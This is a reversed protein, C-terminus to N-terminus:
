RIQTRITINSHANEANSNSHCLCLAVSSSCWTSLAAEQRRYLKRPNSGVLVNEFKSWQRRLSESCRLRKKAYELQFRSIQYNRIQCMINQERAISKPLKMNGKFKKMHSKLVPIVCDSHFRLVMSISEDNHDFHEVSENQEHNKKFALLLRRMNRESGHEEEAQALAHISKSYLRFQKERKQISNSTGEVRVQAEECRVKIEQIRKMTEGVSDEDKETTRLDDNDLKTVNVDCNMFDKEEDSILFLTVNELNRLIPHLCLYRLFHMLYSISKVRPVTPVVVDPREKTLLVRLALFDKYVRRVFTKESSSRIKFREEEKVEVVPWFRPKCLRPYSDDKKREKREIEDKVLKLSRKAIRLINDSRPIEELDQELRSYIRQIVHIHTLTDFDEIYLIHLHINM